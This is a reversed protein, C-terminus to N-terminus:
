TSSGLGTGGALYASGGTVAVSRADAVGPLSGVVVPTAPDSVDVVDVGASGAVYALAGAAAIRHGTGSTDVSGLVAPVRADTVDLVRFAIGDTV